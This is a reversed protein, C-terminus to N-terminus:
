TSFRLSSAAASERRSPAVVSSSPWTVPTVPWVHLVKKAFEPASAFSPAMLSARRQPSRLSPPAVPMTVAM